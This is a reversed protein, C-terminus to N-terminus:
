LFDVLFKLRKSNQFELIRILARRKLTLHLIPSGFNQFEPIKPNENVYKLKPIEEKRPYCYLTHSISLLIVLYPPLFHLNKRLRSLHSILTQPFAM